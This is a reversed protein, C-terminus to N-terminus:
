ATPRGLRLSEIIDVLARVDPVEEFAPAPRAARVAWPGLLFAAGTQPTDDRGFRVTGRGDDRVEFEVAPLDAVSETIVRRSSGRQEVILVRQDTVAYSTRALRRRRALTPGLLMVFGLAVFLLGVVPFLAVVPGDSSVEERPVSLAISTAMGTWFVSFALFFAGPLATALRMGSRLTVATPTGSWLLREGFRLEDSVAHRSV